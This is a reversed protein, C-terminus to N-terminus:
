KIKLLYPAKLAAFHKWQEKILDMNHLSVAAATKKGSKTVLFNSVVKPRKEKHFAVTSTTPMPPLNVFVDGQDEEGQVYNRCGYGGGYQKSPYRHTM